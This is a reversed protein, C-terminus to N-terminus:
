HEYIETNIKLIIQLLIILDISHSMESKNLLKIYSSKLIGETVALTSACESLGLWLVGNYRHLPALTQLM